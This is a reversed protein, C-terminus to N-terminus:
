GRQINKCEQELVTDFEKYSMKSAYFEQYMREHDCIVPRNEFISCLKQETLYKCRGKGDDLLKRWKNNQPLLYMRECCKGCKTCQYM